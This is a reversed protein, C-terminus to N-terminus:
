FELTIDTKKQSGKSIILLEETDEQQITRLGESFETKAHTPISTDLAEKDCSTFSAALLAIIAILKISKM